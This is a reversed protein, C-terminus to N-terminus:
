AKPGRARKARKLFEQVIEKARECEKAITELAEDVEDREADEMLALEASGAIIMLPNNVEHAMDTVFKALKGGSGPLSRKKNKRKM